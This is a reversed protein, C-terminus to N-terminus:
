HFSHSQLPVKAALTGLVPWVEPSPVAQDVFERQGATTVAAVGVMKRDTACVNAGGAPGVPERHIPEQSVNPPIVWVGRCRRAPRNLITSACQNYNPLFQASSSRRRLAFCFDSRMM